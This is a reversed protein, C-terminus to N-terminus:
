EASINRQSPHEKKCQYMINNNFQQIVDRKNTLYVARCLNVTLKSMVTVAVYQLDTGVLACESDATLARIEPSEFGVRLEKCKSYAYEFRANATKNRLEADHQQVM